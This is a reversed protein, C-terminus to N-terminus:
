CVYCPSWSKVLKDVYMALYWSKVLKDVYMALLGVCPSWSKVLKDVYM